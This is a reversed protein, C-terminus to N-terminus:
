GFNANRFDRLLKPGSFVLPTYIQIESAGHELREQLKEISNIGGCGVIDWDLGAEKFNKEYLCQVELSRGYVANGSAGGVQKGDVTPSEDIYFRNHKTSTNGTVVGVVLHGRAIGITDIVDADSSDPSVKVYKKQHQYASNDVVGLIADLMQLNEDRADRTGTSSHTNPCSINVEFRDVYPLDRTANITMEIDRLLEDGQKGPTSMLNITMPVDYDGFSAMRDAVRKAGDGPLGMWNVMSESEVYRKITPRPNGDWSDYTVTGVVIRSFGLYKLVSPPIDGNKNFGAANSLDFALSVENSDNDLVLKELGTKHLVKCFGVFFDHAKQPDKDTLSFVIPKVLDYFTDFSSRLINM